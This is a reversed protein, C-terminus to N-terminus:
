PVTSGCLLSLEAPIQPVWPGLAWQPGWVAYLKHRSDSFQAMVGMLSLKILVWVLRQM